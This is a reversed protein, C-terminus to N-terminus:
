GCSRPCADPPRSFTGAAFGATARSSGPVRLFFARRPAGGRASAAGRGGRRAGLSERGRLSRPPAAGDSRGGRSGVANRHRGRRGHRGGALRSPARPWERAAERASLRAPAAARSPASASVADHDEGVVGRVGREDVDRGEVDGDGAEEADGVLQQRDHGDRSVGPSPTCVDFASVPHTQPVEHVTCCLALGLKREAVEDPRLLRRVRPEDVLPYAPM